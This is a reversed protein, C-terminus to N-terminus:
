VGEPIEVVPGIKCVILARLKAQLETGGKGMYIRPITPCELGRMEAVWHGSMYKASIFNAECIPGGWAWDQVYNVGSALPLAYGLKKGVAWNIQADSLLNVPVETVKTSM